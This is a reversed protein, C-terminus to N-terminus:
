FLKGLLLGLAGFLVGVVLVIGGIAWPPMGGSVVAPPQAGPVAARVSPPPTMPPPQPMPVTPREALPPVSSRSLTTPESTDNTAIEDLAVQASAPRDDPYKALLRAVLRDIWEPVQQVAALSVARPTETMHLQLVRLPRDKDEFPVKGVIMEYFVIGFSYLDSRADVPEGGIQEPSIYTPTGVLMGTATIRASPEDSGPAFIAIGFDLVRVQDREGHVTCLMVNEPKLDRHIINEAHAATLARLIQKGVSIATDVPMPGRQLRAKLSEGQLLEMALFFAGDPTKGWDYVRVINPHALRSSTKMERNFRQVVEDRHQGPLVVKLAVPRDMAVQRAEYVAGMGGQGIKRIVRYRQDFLQGVLPDPSSDHGADSVPPLIRVAPPPLYEWGRV